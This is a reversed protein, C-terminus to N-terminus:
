PAGNQFVSGASITLADETFDQRDRNRSAGIYGMGEAYMGRSLFEYARPGNSMGGRKNVLGILSIQNSFGIISPVSKYLRNM